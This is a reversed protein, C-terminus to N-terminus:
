AVEWQKMDSFFDGVQVDDGANIAKLLSRAHKTNEKALKRVIAARNNETLDRVYLM